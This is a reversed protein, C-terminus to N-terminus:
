CCTSEDASPALRVPRQGTVAEVVDHVPDGRGLRRHLGCSDHVYLTPIPRDQQEMTEMAQKGLEALRDRFFLLFESVHLVEANVLVGAEPYGTRVAGLCASSPTVWTRQRNFFQKLGAATAEFGTRDGIVRLPAGCCVPTDDRGPLSVHDAGLSRLLDMTAGVTAPEEALVRCGPWYLVRGKRQFDGDRAQELLIERPDMEFPNGHALYTEHLARSGDHIAGKEWAEARAMYLLKPVDQDYECPARCAECGTCKALNEAAVEWPIQGARAQHYSDMMATPTAGEDATGAAIPCAFRCLKPCLACLQPDGPTSNAAETERGTSPAKDSM